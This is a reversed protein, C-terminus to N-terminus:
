FASILKFSITEQQKKQSLITIAEEHLQLIRPYGGTTQCDKMLVILKGSPTLQVTGPLIPSSIMTKFNNQIREEIQYGMRSNIGITFTTEFLKEKQVADLLEFEPAEYVKLVKKTFISNSTGVRVNKPQQLVNASHYQLTDGKQLKFTATIGEYASRSDYVEETQFGNLIGLYCRVGKKAKDFALEDNPNITYIQNHKINKGNLTPSFDAGSIAIQTPKSFHLKAGVLTMELVAANKHNGLILNSLQAHYEDMVGAVPIGFKRYGFRGLDQVSTYWGSKLVTIM